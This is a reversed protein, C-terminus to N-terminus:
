DYYNFIVEGVTKAKWENIQIKESKALESCNDSSLLEMLETKGLYKFSGGQEVVGAVSPHDLGKLVKGFCPGDFNSVLAVFPYHANCVLGIKEISGFLAFYYNHASGDQEINTVNLSLERAVNYVLTKFLGFDVSPPKADNDYFSSIGYQLKM